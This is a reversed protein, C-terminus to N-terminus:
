CQYIIQGQIRYDRSDYSLIDVWRSRGMGEGNTLSCPACGCAPMGIERLEETITVGLGRSPRHWQQLAQHNFIRGEASKFERDM